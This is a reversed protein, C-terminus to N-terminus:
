MVVVEHESNKAVFGDETESYTDAFFSIDQLSDEIEVRGDSYKIVSVCLTGNQGEDDADSWVNVSEIGEALTYLSETM